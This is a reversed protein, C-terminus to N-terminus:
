NGPTVITRMGGGPDVQQSCAAVADNRGNVNKQAFDQECFAAVCQASYVELELTVQTQNPGYGIVHLIVDGDLDTGAAFGQDTLNNLVSVQYWAQSSAQFLNGPIGPKKNNGLIAPPTIPASNSPTVFASFMNTASCSTRLYEMGVAAGSEAAYLAMQQFRDEGSSKTESQVSLMTIGGIGLLAVLAILAVILAAGREGRAPDRGRSKLTYSM